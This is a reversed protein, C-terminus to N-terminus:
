NEGANMDVLGGPVVNENVDGRKKGSIAVGDTFCLPQNNPAKKPACFCHPFQTSPMSPSMSPALMLPDSVDFAVEAEELVTVKVFPMTVLPIMAQPGGDTDHKV